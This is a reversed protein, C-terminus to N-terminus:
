SAGAAGGRAFVCVPLWAAAAVAAADGTEVGTLAERWRGDPGPDPGPLADGEAWPLRAAVFIEGDPHRRRFACVGPGAAVPEYSGAAFVAPMRRRLALLRATVALKADPSTPVAFAAAGAPLAALRAALADFDVPRRNDPDVLSQEWVEAGRYTDPVGPLTLKLAAQVLGAAAGADAVTAEFARFAPLFAGDRALARGVFADLRAEYGADGFVWRTNEGAERASKLMAARVRAAFAAFAAEGPEVGPRWAAPWAGLLLQYFFWADNPDIPQAPDAVRPHWDAIAAAWAGAHGALVAIRARADEGRKTDHTSTALMARPFRALRDANARHFADLPIAFRGPTSGVENLALLRAFRYLATDELGKAMAPGTLQQARLAADAVAAMPWPGTELTLVAAVLAFADPDLWPAARGARAVAAGVRARDGADIGAADAYTRYVDMAVVTEVLAARIAGTGLDAFRPHADALRRLRRVLAAVESNLLRVLAERKAEAVVTAPAATRGTFDRYAADLAAAGGPDVLLGVLLNAVEYGTTGDVEWGAPLAEDEGLIKEVLLWVPRGARARLRRLYGAPDRLGDVHDVRLGDVLGEAVLGLVCGHTAEFVAADEVRVGALDSIAFFRRYNLGDRELTFKAARWHQRAVLAALAAWSGPEGPRGRFAALGRDVAAGERVIAARLADRGPHDPGAGALAEAAAALAACGAARLVAAYDEPAVPLAHSGHARVALSGDAERGLALAGAALATAFAEGLVPLIVRGDAGPAQWDIDFWGAFRSAAGRALVDQWYPNAAGTGMHNPVIDLVIGLGAARFAAAMARFGAEGGLEPAIRAPDTVDYGHTSGPRAAFVPALYAHSVGLAALYPALRAADAFGFDPGFQLRYTARLNM